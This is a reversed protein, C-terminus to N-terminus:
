AVHPRDGAHHRGVLGFDGCLDHLRDRERATPTGTGARGVAGAGSIVIAISPHPVVARGDPHVAAAGFAGAHDPYELRIASAAQRAPDVPVDRAALDRHRRPDARDVPGRRAVRVPHRVPQCSRHDHFKNEQPSLPPAPPGPESSASEPGVTVRKLADVRAISGGGAGIEVMEIVPIRVPLGSGKLFRAARDVEFARSTEPQYQEILCIKATTGGMDFSLVKTEGLRAAIQAAFIAGGAPGSEVLRVPFRQVTEISTVGGGSTVLYIAGRFQEVQLAEAMRALYGDILPQVYANAVATSTREYERIEPCVASSLTVWIAPLEEKLVAAARREHEPNAYSHLFAFAVSEVNQARLDPALARVAVEDLPLRVAGRADIREPVTFRLSRPALPKPKDIALDYQDYRSETGIDLVDRFGDTAVLATKAGRREIIANTALTTGHIFVDIDCIHARADALILRMGDLVAQEPRSATTLVKRTRRDQGVDLVFDTFTGGIDVALRVEAGQHMAMDGRRQSFSSLWRYLLKWALSQARHHASGNQQAGIRRV